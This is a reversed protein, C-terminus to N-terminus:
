DETIPSALRSIPKLVHLNLNIALQEVIRMGIGAIPNDFNVPIARPLSRSVFEDLINKENLAESSTPKVKSLGLRALLRVAMNGIGALTKAIPGTFSSPEIFLTAIHELARMSGNVFDDSSLAKKNDLVNLFAIESTKRVTESGLRYLVRLPQNDIFSEFYRIVGRFVSDFVSRAVGKGTDSIKNDLFKQTVPKIEGRQIEVKLPSVVPTSKEATQLQSRIPAALTDTAVIM